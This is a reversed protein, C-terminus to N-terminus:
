DHADAESDNPVAGSVLPAEIETSDGDKPHTDASAIANAIKAAKMLAEGVAVDLLGDIGGRSKAKEGCRLAEAQLQVAFQRFHTASV